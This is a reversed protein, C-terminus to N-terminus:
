RGGESAGSQPKYPEALVDAMSVVQSDRRRLRFIELAVLVLLVSGFIFLAILNWRWARMNTLNGGIVRRQDDSVLPLDLVAAYWNEPTWRDDPYKAPPPNAQAVALDIAQGGTKSTEVFTYILAALTLLWSLLVVVAWIYFAPSTKDWKTRGDAGDSSPHTPLYIRVKKRARRELWLALIGGFGVLM